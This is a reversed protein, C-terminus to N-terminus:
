RDRAKCLTHQSKRDRPTDPLKGRRTSCERDSDDHLPLAGGRSLPASAGRPRPASFARRRRTKEKASEFTITAPRPFPLFGETEGELRVSAASRPALPHPPPIGSKCGAWVNGSPSTRAAVPNLPFMTVPPSASASCLAILSSGEAAPPAGLVSEVYARPAKTAAEAPGPRAGNTAARTPM